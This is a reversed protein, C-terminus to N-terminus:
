AAEGSDRRAQGDVTVASETPDDGNHEFRERAIRAPQAHEECLKVGERAVTAPQRCAEEDCCGEDRGARRPARESTRSDGATLASGDGDGSGSGYGSGARESLTSRADSRENPVCRVATRSPKQPQASGLRDRRATASAAGARRRQEVRAEAQAAMARLDFPEVPVYTDGERTFCAEMVPRGIRDWVGGYVRAMNALVTDDAPLACGPAQWACLLLRLLAGEQESTLRMIAASGLWDRVFFPFWPLRTPDRDRTAAKVNLSDNDEPDM